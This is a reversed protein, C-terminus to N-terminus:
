ADESRGRERKQRGRRRKEELRRREASAPKRTPVRPRRRRNRARLREALREFALDRNRERSRRESAVVTVGSPPHFLRVATENKNRHQGGPGGARFFDM